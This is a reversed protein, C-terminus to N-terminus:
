FLGEKVESEPPLATAHRRLSSYVKNMLARADKLNQESPHRGHWLSYIHLTMRGNEIQGFEIAGFARGSQYTFQHYPPESFTGRAFSSATDPRVERYDFSQIDSVDRL